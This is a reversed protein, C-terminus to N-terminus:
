YGWCQLVAEVARTFAAGAEGAGELVAGHSTHGANVIVGLVSPGMGRRRVARLEAAVSMSVATGGLARLLELEAETEYHPGPVSVHVGEYLWAPRGARARIEEALAQSTAPLRQPAQPETEGPGMSRFELVEVGIVIDGVRSGTAVAGCASTVLVKRVGWRGLTEVCLQLESQDYGEYEHIRGELLVVPLGGMQALAVRYPHGVVEGEKWFPVDRYPVEVTRDM